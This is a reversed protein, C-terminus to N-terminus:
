GGDGSVLEDGVRLMGEVGQAARVDRRVHGRPLLQAAGVVAVAECV